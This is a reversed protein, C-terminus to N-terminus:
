VGRSPKRRSRPMPPLLGGLMRDIIEDFVGPPEGNARRAERTVAAELVAKAFNPVSRFGGRKAM